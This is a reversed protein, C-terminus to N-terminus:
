RKARALLLIAPDVKGERSFLWRFNIFGTTNWTRSLDTTIRGLTYELIGVVVYILLGDVWGLFRGLRRRVEGSRVRRRQTILRAISQRTDVFGEGPKSIAFSSLARHSISDRLKVNM